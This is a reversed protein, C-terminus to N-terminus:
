HSLWLNLLKLYFKAMKHFNNCGECLTYYGTNFVSLFFTSRSSSSRWNLLLMLDVQAPSDDDGDRQSMGSGLILVLHWGGPATVHCSVELGLMLLVIILSTRHVKQSPFCESWLNLLFCLIKGCKLGCLSWFCEKSKVAKTLTKTM